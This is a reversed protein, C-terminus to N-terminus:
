NAKGEEGFTAVFLKEATGPKQFAKAAKKMFEIYAAKDTRYFKDVLVFLRFSENTDMRAVRDKVFEDFFAQSIYGNELLFREAIYQTLAEVYPIDKGDGGPGPYYWCHAIEHAFIYIAGYYDSQIVGFGPEIKVVARANRSSTYTLSGCAGHITPDTIDSDTVTISDAPKYGFFRAYWDFSANLLGLIYADTWYRDNKRTYDFIGSKESYKGTAKITNEQTVVVQSSSGIRALGGTVWLIGEQVDKDLLASNLTSYNKAAILLYPKVGARIVVIDNVLLKEKVTDITFGFFDKIASTDSRTDTAVYVYVLPGGQYTLPDPLAQGQWGSPMVSYFAEVSKRSTGALVQASLGTALLSFVFALSWIIKSM